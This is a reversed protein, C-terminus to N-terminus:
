SFDGCSKGQIFLEDWLQVTLIGVLAASEFYEHSGAKRKNKIAKLMNEVMSEVTDPNFYGKEKVSKKSLLERFCEPSDRHFYLRAFPTETLARKRKYLEHPIHKKFVERLIYKETLFRVKLSPPISSAFEVFKHDLMPYLGQVSNAMTTRDIAMMGEAPMLVRMNLYTTQTFIDRGKVMSPDVHSMVDEFVEYDKLKEKTFESFIRKRQSRLNYYKYLFWPYCHWFKEAFRKEKSDPFKINKSEFKIKLLATLFPMLVPKIANPPFDIIKGVQYEPQGGLIYDSGKGGLTAKIYKGALESILIFNADDHNFMPVEKHWITKPVVNIIENYDYPVERNYTGLMKAMKRAIKMDRSVKDDFVPNGSFTMFSEKKIKKILNCVSASDLGGSLYAGFPANVCNLRIRTADELLNFFKEFYYKNPFAFEKGNKLPFSLDWYKKINSSSKGVLMSHASYLSKIDKIMTRPDLIHGFNFFHEIARFDTKKEILGSALIAKIESAFIFNGKYNSYFLPRIGNRDRAMFLQENKEDWIVFVFQGRLKKLMEEGYEEYLHVIVEIDSDTYLRHGANVVERKLEKYNCVAGDFVIWVTKDENHIPQQWSGLDVIKLTRAGLGVNNKVYFGEGDPGRHCIIDTMKKLLGKKVPAGQLNFIGCIGSM